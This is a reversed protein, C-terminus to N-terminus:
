KKKIIWFAAGAGVTLVCFVSLVITLIKNSFAKKVTNDSNAKTDVDLETGVAVTGNTIEVAINKYSSDVIDGAVELSVQTKGSWGTAVTFTVDLLSGASKVGTPHIYAIKLADSNDAKFNPNVSSYGGESASGATNSKYLLKSSDYKLVLDAASLNSDVSVSISVVIDKGSEGKVSTVTLKAPDLASAKFPVALFGAAMVAMIVSSAAKKFILNM